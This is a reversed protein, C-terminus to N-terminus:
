RNCDPQFAPTKAELRSQTRHASLAPVVPGESRISRGGHLFASVDEGGRADARPKKAGTERFVRDGCSSSHAEFVDARRM